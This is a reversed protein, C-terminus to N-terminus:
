LCIYIWDSIFHYSDSITICFMIAGPPPSMRPLLDEVKNLAASAQSVLDPFLMRLDELEEVAAISTYAIDSPPLTEVPSSKKVRTRKAQTYEINVKFSPIVEGQHSKTVLNRVM